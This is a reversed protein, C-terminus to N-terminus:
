NYKEDLDLDSIRLDNEVLAELMADKLHDIALYFEGMVPRNPYSEEFEHM